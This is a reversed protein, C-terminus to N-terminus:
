RNLQRASMPRFKSFFAMPSIQSAEIYILPSLTFLETM